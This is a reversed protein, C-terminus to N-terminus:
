CHSTQRVTDHHLLVEAGVFVGEFKNRQFILYIQAWRAGRRRTAELCSALRIWWAPARRRGGSALPARGQPARRRWAAAERIKPATPRETDGRQPPPAAVPGWKWRSRREPARELASATKSPTTREAGPCWQVHPPPPTRPARQSPALCEKARWQNTDTAAARQLPGALGNNRGMQKVETRCSCCHEDGWAQAWLPWQQTASSTHKRLM